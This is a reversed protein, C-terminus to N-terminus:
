RKAGDWITIAVITGSRAVIHNLGATAMKAQGARSNARSRDRPRPIQTVFERTRQTAIEGGAM